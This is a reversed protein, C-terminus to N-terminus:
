LSAAGAEQAAGGAGAGAIRMAAHTGTPPHPPASPLLLSVEKRLKRLMMKGRVRQEEEIREGEAVLNVSYPSNGMKMRWLAAKRAREEALRAQLQKEAALRQQGLSERMALSRAMVATSPMRTSATFSTFGESASRPMGRPRVPPLAAAMSFSVRRETERVARM